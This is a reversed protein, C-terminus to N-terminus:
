KVGMKRYQKNRCEKCVSYWGDRSTKNKSFFNNHALKIQGCKSCKKYKGKEKYLYHWNLLDNEAQGAILNPIKRRWLSSIYELSYKIGFKEEIDAQIEINQMNDIKDIVIREYLPYKKLVKTALDDFDLMMYWSDSELNGFDEEKLRSYNCLIASIVKPNAFSYGQPVLKSSNAASASGPTEDM